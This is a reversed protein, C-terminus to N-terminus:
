AVESLQSKVMNNLLWKGPDISQCDSKYLKRLLKEEAPTWPEFAPYKEGKPYANATADILKSAEPAGIARAMAELAAVTTQSFSVYEANKGSPPSLDIGANFTLADLIRGSNQRFDEYRWLFARDPALCEEFRQILYPWQLKAWQLRDKFDEFAVFQQTNRIGECYASSLFSDYSRIACFMTIDHGSLLARLHTLRAHANAFPHGSLLLGGCYGILNEESIILGRINAPLNRDFFKPLLQEIKFEGPVFDMFSETFMQRLEWLSIYGIGAARLKGRNEHLTNQMYTTATKHVGIHIHIQM